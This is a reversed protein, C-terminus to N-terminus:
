MDNRAEIVTEAGEPITWGDTERDTQRHGMGAASPLLHNHADTEHHRDTRIADPHPLAPSGTEAGTVDPQQPAHCLVIGGKGLWLPVPGTEGATSTLMDSQVLSATMGKGRAGTWVDRTIINRHHATVVEMVTPVAQENLRKAELHHRSQFNKESSPCPDPSTVLTTSATMIVTGSKNTLRTMIVAAEAIDSKAAM